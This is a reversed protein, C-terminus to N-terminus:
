EERWEIYRIKKDKVYGKAMVVKTMGLSECTITIRFVSAPDPTFVLYNRAEDGIEEDVRNCMDDFDKYPWWSRNEDIGATEEPMENRGAIIAEAIARSEEIDEDDLIGPVTLLQDVGCTNPNVKTDGTVGFLHLIGRIRPNDESEKEDPYLLGGTLVAPYKRFGRIYSLEWVSPISGNRPRIRDEESVRNDDDQEEYWASEAGTAEGIMCVSDNDDRWDSWCAILWESIPVTNGDDDRVDFEPDIGHSLFAMELRLRYNPDDCGEYLENINISNKKGSGDVEIEVKVTSPNVYVGNQDRTEDLLIPGIVCRSDTKLARKELLWRDDNEIIDATDEDVSWESVENYSVLVVEALVKGSDVLRDVRARERVFLNVGAQLRAEVSFALVMVSLVAITWLATILASGRAGNM